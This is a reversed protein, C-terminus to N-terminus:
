WGTFVGVGFAFNNTLGESVTRYDGRFILGSNRDLYVKGLPQVVLDMFGLEERFGFSVRGDITNSLAVGLGAGYRGFRRELRVGASVSSEDGMSVTEINPTFDAFLNLDVGKVTGFLASAALAANSGYSAEVTGQAHAPLSALSLSLLLALALSVGLRKM